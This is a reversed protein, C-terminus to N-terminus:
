AVIRRALRIRLKWIVESQMKTNRRTSRCGDRGPLDGDIHGYDGRGGGGGGRLLLISKDLAGCPGCPLFDRSDAMDNLIMNDYKKVQADTSVDGKISSHCSYTCRAGRTSASSRWVRATPLDGDCDAYKNRGGGGGGRLQLVCAELSETVQDHRQADNEADDDDVDNDKVAM